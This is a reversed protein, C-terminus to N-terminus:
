DYTTFSEVKMGDGELLKLSSGCNKCKSEIENADQNLGCSQCICSYPDIFIELSCAKFNAYEAKISDFLFRLSDPYISNIRNARFLIKEIPSNIDRSLLEDNVIEIINRAIGMEHM